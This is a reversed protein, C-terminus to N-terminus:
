HAPAKTEGESPPHEGHGAEESPLQQRDNWDGKEVDIRFFTEQEENLRPRSQLDFLTFTFFIAVFIITSMFVFVHYRDDYRLHMFFMCVLTAKCVAVFMAVPLSAPGLSAFSVAYTLATLVLLASLVKVYASVPSVHEHIEHFGEVPKGNLYIQAEPHDHHAM